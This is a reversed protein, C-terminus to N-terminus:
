AVFRMSLRQLSITQTSQTSSVLNALRMSPTQTRFFTSFFHFVLIDLLHLFRECKQREFRGILDIECMKITTFTHSILRNIPHSSFTARSTSSRHRFATRFLFFGFQSSCFSFRINNARWVVVRVLILVAAVALLTISYM